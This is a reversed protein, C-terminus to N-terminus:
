KLGADRLIANLTGKKVDESKHQGVQFIKGTIPSYWQTHNAGERYITCGAKRLLQELESYKM